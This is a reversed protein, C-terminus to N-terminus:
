RAELHYLNHGSTSKFRTITIKKWGSLSGAFQSLKVSGSVPSSTSAWVFRDEIDNGLITADNEPNAAHVLFSIKDKPSDFYFKADESFSSTLYLYENGKLTVAQGSSVNVGIPEVPSAPIEIEVPDYVMGYTNVEVMRVVYGGRILYFWASGGQVVNGLTYLCDGSEMEGRFFISFGAALKEILESPLIINGDEDYLTVDDGVGRHTMLVRGGGGGGGATQVWSLAGGVSCLVFLEGTVRNFFQDFEIFGEVTTPNETDVSMRPIRVAGDANPAGYGNITVVVYRAPDPSPTPILGETTAPTIEIWGRGDWFQKGGLKYAIEYSQKGVARFQQPLVDCVWKKGESDYTASYASHIEDLTVIVEVNTAGADIQPMELRLTSLVGVKLSVLRLDKNNTLVINEM